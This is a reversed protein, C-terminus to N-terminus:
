RHVNIGKFPGNICCTSPNPGSANDKDPTIFGYGKDGGRIPTYANAVGAFGTMQSIQVGFLPGGELHRHQAAAPATSFVLMAAMLAAVTLMLLIRRM